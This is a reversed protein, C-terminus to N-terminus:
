WDQKLRSPPSSWKTEETTSCLVAESGLPMMKNAYGCADWGRSTAVCVSKRWCAQSPERNLMGVAVTSSRLM